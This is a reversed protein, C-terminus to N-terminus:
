YLIDDVEDKIFKQEEKIEELYNLLDKELDSVTIPDRQKNLWSM